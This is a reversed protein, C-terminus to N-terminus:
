TVCDPATLLFSNNPFDMSRTSWRIAFCLSLAGEGQEDTADANSRDAGEQEVDSIDKESPTM